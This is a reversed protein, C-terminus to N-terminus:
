PSICNQSSYFMVSCFCINPMQSLNPRYKTRKGTFSIRELEAIQEISPLNITVKEEAIRCVTGRLGNVLKDTLNRLLMVDAGIKLWLTKQVVFSDLDRPRGSDLAEFM